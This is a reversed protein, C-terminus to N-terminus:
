FKVQVSRGPKVILVASMETIVIPQCAQAPDATRGGVVKVAVNMSTAQTNKGSILFDPRKDNIHSTSLACCYFDKEYRVLDTIGPNIKNINDANLEFTKLTEEYQSVLSLPQTPLDQSNIEFQVTAGKM